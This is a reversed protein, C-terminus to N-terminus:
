DAVAIRFIYDITLVVRKGSDSETLELLSGNPGTIKLPEGTYVGKRVGESGRYDIVLDSEMLLAYDIVQMMDHHSLEKLTSSYKGGGGFEERKEEAALTMFDSILKLNSSTRDTRPLFSIPEKSDPEGYSQSRVDFGFSDLTSIVRNEYGPKIRYVSVAKVEEIYESLQPHEGIADVTEKDSIFVFKGSDISVRHFENIWEKVSVIINSPANWKELFKIVYEGDLGNSLSDALTEKDIKGKYVKDLKILKGIRCFVYLLEPYITQSIMVSFDPLIVVTGPKDEAEWLDDIACISIDKGTKSAGILGSYHLLQLSDIVEKINSSIFNFHDGEKTIKNLINVNWRGCYDIASRTLTSYIDEPSQSVWEYARCYSVLLMGDKKYILGQEFAFHLLFKFIFLIVSNKKGLHLSDVSIHTIKKLESNASLTLEGNKKLKLEGRAAVNLIAILDNIARYRFFPLGKECNEQKFFSLFELNFENEFIKDLDSFGYLYECFNNDAMLYVLFSNLLEEKEQKNISVNIGGAGCLYSYLVLKQSNESLNEFREKVSTISISESIMNSLMRSSLIKRKGSEEKSFRNLVVEAPLKELYNKLSYRKYLHTM